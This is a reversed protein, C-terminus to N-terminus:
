HTKAFLAAGLREKRDDPRVAHLRGIAVLLGAIGYLLDPETEIRIREETLQSFLRESLDFWSQDELITGLLLSGYILSGIGNGIGSGSGLEFQELKERFSELLPKVKERHLFRDAAAM